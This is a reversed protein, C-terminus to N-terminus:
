NRTPWEHSTKSCRCSQTRRKASIRASRRESLSVPKVCTGAPTTCVLQELCRFLRHGSSVNIPPVHSLVLTRAARTKARASARAEFFPGCKQHWPQRFISTVLQRCSCTPQCQRAFHRCVCALDHPAGQVVFLLLRVLCETSDTDDTMPCAHSMMRCGASEKM